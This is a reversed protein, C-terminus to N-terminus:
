RTGPAELVDDFHISLASVDVASVDDNFGYETASEQEGHQADDVADVLSLTM